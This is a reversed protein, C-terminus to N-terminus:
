AVEEATPEIQEAEWPKIAFTVVEQEERENTFLMIDSRKITAKVLCPGHAEDYHAVAFVDRFPKRNAFWAGTKRSTTWSYGCATDVPNLGYCGRYVTLTEPIDDPIPFAAYEFCEELVEGMNLFSGSLDEGDEDERPFNMAYSQVHQHDHDWANELFAGYATREMVQDMGLKVAWFGRNDGNMSYVVSRAADPDDNFLANIVTKRDEAICDSLVADILEDM